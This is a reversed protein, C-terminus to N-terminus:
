KEKFIERKRELDALKKEEEIGRWEEHFREREMKERFGEIRGESRLNREM